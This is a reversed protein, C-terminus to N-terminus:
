YRMPATHFTDARIMTVDQIARGGLIWGFNWQGIANRKEGSPLYSTVDVYWDGVFQGFLTLRDALTADPGRALLGTIWAPPGVPTEQGNVAQWQGGRRALVDTFVTRGEDHGSTDSAAVIGNAIGVDGYIRVDLRDFRYRLSTPAPHAVVWHIHQAKTLFDGTPVPHVFDPALIRDLTASDVATLWENELAILAQHDADPTRSQGGLPTVAAVIVTALLIARLHM